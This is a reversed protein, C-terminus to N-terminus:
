STGLRRILNEWEERRITLRRSSRESPSLADIDRFYRYARPFDIFFGGPIPIVPPVVRTFFYDFARTLTPDIQSDRQFMLVNKFHVFADARVPPVTGAPHLFFDFNLVVPMTEGELGSSFEAPAAWAHEPLPSRLAHITSALVFANLMPEAGDVRYIEGTFEGRRNVGIQLKVNGRIRLNIFDDPYTMVGNVRQWLKEFFPYLRGERVLSMSEAVGYGDRSPGDGLGAGRDSTFPGFDLGLGRLPAASGRGMRRASSVKTKASKGVSHPQGIEVLLTKPSSAPSPASPPTRKFFSAGLLAFHLALSYLLFRPM